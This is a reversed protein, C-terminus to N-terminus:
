VLVILCVDLDVLSGARIAGSGPRAITVAVSADPDSAMAAAMDTGGIAGPVLRLAHRGSRAAAVMRARFATDALAAAGITWVEARALAREGHLALAGPGAADIVIDAPIAHFADPDTTGRPDAIPARTLIAVLAVGDLADLGAIVPGGIRGAGIIAIRTM